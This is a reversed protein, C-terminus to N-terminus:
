LIYNKEPFAFHCPIRSSPITKLLMQIFVPFSHHCTILPGTNPKKLTTVFAEHTRLIHFGHLPSDVKPFHPRGCFKPSKGFYEIYINIFVTLIQCLLGIEIHVQNEDIDTIIVTFPIKRQDYQISLQNNLMIKFM